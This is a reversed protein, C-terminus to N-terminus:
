GPAFRGIVALVPTSETQHTEGPQWHSYDWYCVIKPAQHDSSGGRQHRREPYRQDHHHDHDQQAEDAPQPLAKLKRAFRAM